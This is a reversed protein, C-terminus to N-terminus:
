LPVDVCESGPPDPDDGANGDDEGDPEADDGEDPPQDGATEPEPPETQIAKPEPVPGSVMGDENRAAVHEDPDVPKAVVASVPTEPPPSLEMHPGPVPRAGDGTYPDNGSGHDVEPPPETTPTPEGDAPENPDSELVCGQAPLLEPVAPTEADARAEEVWAADGSGGTCAGLVLLAAILHRRRAGGPCEHSALVDRAEAARKRHRHM